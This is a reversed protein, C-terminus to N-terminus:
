FTIKETGIDDDLFVNFDVKCTDQPTKPSIPLKGRLLIPQFVKINSLKDWNESNKDMIYKETM